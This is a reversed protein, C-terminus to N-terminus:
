YLQSLIQSQQKIVINRKLMVLPKPTKIIQTKTRTSLSECEALSVNIPTKGHAIMTNEITTQM